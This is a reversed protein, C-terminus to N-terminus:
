RTGKAPEAANADQTRAAELWSQPYEAHTPLEGSACGWAPRSSWFIHDSPKMPPEGDLSGAPIVILTGNRILRPLPCGCNSCFWKGFSQATAHSYRKIAQEGSLWRFQQPNVTITTGHGTGSSKRCRACHCHIMREFPPSVEFTVSGCLCSGHIKVDSM